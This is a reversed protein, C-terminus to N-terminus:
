NPYQRGAGANYLTSADSSTLATGNWFGLEDIRGNMYIGDSTIAGVQFPASTSTISAPITGFFSLTQQTGNVYCKLRNANGTQTGDYVWVTHYWTDTSPYATTIHGYAGYNDVTNPAINCFADSGGLGSGAAVLYETASSITYKSVVGRGAVTTDKKYVWFSVSFKTSPSFDAHSASSLYMSSTNTFTCANTFVGTNNGPSNNATLDHGGIADVRTGSAEDLRYYVTLGTWVANTSSGSSISTIRPGPIVASILFSSNFICFALLLVALRALTLGNKIKFKLNKM